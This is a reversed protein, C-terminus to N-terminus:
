RTINVTIQGTVSGSSDLYTFIETSSDLLQGTIVYAGAITIDFDATSVILSQNSVSGVTFTAGLQFPEVVNVTITYSTNEDIVTFPTVGDAGAVVSVPTTAGPITEITDQQDKLIDGFGSSGVNYWARLPPTTRYLDNLLRVQEDTIAM